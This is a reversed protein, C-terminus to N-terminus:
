LDEFISVLEGVAKRAEEHQELYDLLEDSMEGDNRVIGALEDRFEEPVREVLAEMRRMADEDTTMSGEMMPACLSAYQNTVIYARMIERYRKGTLPTQRWLCTELELRSPIRGVEQVYDRVKEVAEFTKRPVNCGHNSLDVAYQLFEHYIIRGAFTSFTWGCKIDYARVAKVLGYNGHAILEDIDASAAPNADTFKKALNIVLPMNHVVRWNPDSKPTQAIADTVLKRYYDLDPM